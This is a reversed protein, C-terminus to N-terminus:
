FSTKKEQVRRREEEEEEEEDGDIDAIDDMEAHLPSTKELLYVSLEDEDDNRHIDVVYEQSKGNLLEVMTNTAM